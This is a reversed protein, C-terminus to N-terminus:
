WAICFSPRERNREREETIFKNMITKKRQLNVKKQSSGPSGRLGEEESHHTNAATTGVCGVYGLDYDGAEETM